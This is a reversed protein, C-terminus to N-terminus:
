ASPLVVWIRAGGLPSDDIGLRGGHSEVIRRCTALGIGFGPAEANSGRELPELVLEREAVPVGPGNDDVVIRVGSAVTGVSVVVQPLRGGTGAFKVANGVLNQVLVSALTPDAQVPVSAEVTVEAGNDEGASRLDEMTSAVLPEVDVATRRIPSGGIRAYDLLRGIMGSMRDAVSEARALARSAAPLDAVEPVDAALEIYGTLATLPNRLDHAVQAAFNELQENSEGLERTIRRLELVDVIQRAILALAASEDEPLERPVEDFICITGIPVGMPTILPSSAYFKVNAVEGTVFPNGAFREDLSADTVVTHGPKRFVVACMSDERTCVAPEIGVAAIQHQFRDDILNIVATPVGSVTAALQVLGQLDAEPAEGLVRYDEIIARRIADDATKM